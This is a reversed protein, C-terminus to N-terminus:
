CYSAGAACCTHPMKGAVRTGSLQRLAPTLVSRFPKASLGNVVGIGVM